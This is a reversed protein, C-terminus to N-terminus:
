RYAKDDPLRKLIEKRHLTILPGTSDARKVVYRQEGREIVISQISARFVPGYFKKDPTNYLRCAVTNGVALPKGM